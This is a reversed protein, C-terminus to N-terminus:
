VEIFRKQIMVLKIGYLM